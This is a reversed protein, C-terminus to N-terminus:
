NCGRGIPSKGTVKYDEGVFVRWHVWGHSCHFGWQRRAPMRLWLTWVPEAGVDISHPLEARRFYLRWARRLVRKVPVHAATPQFGFNRTHPWSCPMTEVYQGRLILTVNDGVHDHLARDDDGRCIKHLALKWGCWRILHWRLM